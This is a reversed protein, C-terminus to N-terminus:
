QCDYGRDRSKNWRANFLEYANHPKRSFSELGVERIDGDSQGTGGFMATWILKHKLHRAEEGFEVDM